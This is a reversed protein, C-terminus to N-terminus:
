CILLRLCFLLPHLHAAGYRVGFGFGRQAPEGGFANEHEVAGHARHDLREPEVLFAKAARAEVGPVAFHAAVVIKEIEAARVRHAGDM